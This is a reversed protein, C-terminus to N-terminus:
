APPVSRITPVYAPPDPTRPRHLLPALRELPLLDVAYADLLRAQLAVPDLDTTASRRTDPVEIGGSHRECLPYLRDLFRHVVSPTGPGPEFWACMACVLRLRAPYARAARWGREHEIVRGWLAVTGVVPPPPWAPRSRDFVDLSRAAYIGCRCAADPAEHPPRFLSLLPRAGCRAALPRRPVWVDVGDGVPHLLPGEDEDESLDWARWGDIAEVAAEPTDLHMGLDNAGPGARALGCVHHHIRRCRALMM